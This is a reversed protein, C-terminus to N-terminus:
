NRTLHMNSSSSLQVQLIEAAEAGVMHFGVVQDDKSSVIVKVFEKVDKRGLTNKMPRCACVLM